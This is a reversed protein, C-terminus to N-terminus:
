KDFLRLFAAPTVIKFPLKGQFDAPLDLLDRDNTILYAARGAAATALLLNDDRDRSETFRRGLSVVTTPPYDIWRLRWKELLDERLRLVDRFTDLYEAILEECVVLQVLRLLWLRVLRKNPSGISRSKLGRVFVNTDFVVITRERRSVM